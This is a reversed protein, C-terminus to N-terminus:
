TKQKLLTPVLGAILILGGGAMTLWGPKQELLFYALVIGYLPEMSVILSATSARLYALSQNFLGHAIGTFAIGLLVLLGWSGGDQPIELGINFPILVLFAFLNQYAAIGLGELEANLGRNILAMIAFSGAGALGWLIGEIGFDAQLADNGVIAIGVLVLLALLLDILNIKERFVLPELLSTFLPFTSFALLGIAVNTLQIAKFFAMWHFALIFGTGILKIWTKSSKPIKLRRLATLMILLFLAAFLTRGAVIQIPLLHDLWEAFLGPFGFLFTAIHVLILGQKHDKHM